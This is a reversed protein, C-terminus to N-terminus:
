FLQADARLFFFREVEAENALEKEEDSKFHYECMFTTRTDVDFPSIETIIM